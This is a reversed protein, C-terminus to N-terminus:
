TTCINGDQCYEESHSNSKCRNCRFILTCNKWYHGNTKCLGCMQPSHCNKWYHGQKLCKTCKVFRDKDERRKDQIAWPRLALIARFNSPSLVQDELIGPKKSTRAMLDKELELAKSIKWPLKEEDKNINKNISNDNNKKKISWHQILDPDEIETM